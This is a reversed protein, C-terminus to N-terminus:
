KKEQARMSRESANPTKVEVETQAKWNTPAGQWSANKRHGSKGRQRPEGTQSHGKSVLM